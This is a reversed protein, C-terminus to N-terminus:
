HQNSLMHHALQVAKDLQNTKDYYFFLEKEYVNVSYVHGYNRFFPLAQEELYSYYQEQKEQLKYLLLTFLYSYLLEKLEESVALGEKSLKVLEDKTLLNGKICAQIYGELSNLYKKSKVKKIKMADKFLTAALQYDEMRFYDNALNHLVIAKRTVTHCLECSKILSEYKKLRATFNSQVHKNQIVLLLTETDIVRLFNNSSKFYHLAKEAYSYALLDTNNFYYSIALHYYYDTNQYTHSNISKLANIAKLYEQKRIYYIGWIHYLLGSEYPSLKQNQLKKIIKLTGPDNEKSLLFRAKLLKYLNNYDSIYILESEELEAVLSDAEEEQQMIISEHWKELKQQIAKFTRIEEHMSINLRKALLETIDKSFHTQGLEIKSIHTASCIDRGLEEQTLGTRERYFKIIKGEYMM